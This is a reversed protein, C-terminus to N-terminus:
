WQSGAARLHSWFGLTGQVVVVVISAILRYAYTAINYCVKGIFCLDFTTAITQTDAVDNGVQCSYQGSDIVVEGGGREPCLEMSSTVVYVGEVEQQRTEIVGGPIVTNNNYRWTVM